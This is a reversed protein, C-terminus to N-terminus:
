KVDAALLNEVMDRYAIPFVVRLQKEQVDSLRACAVRLVDLYIRAKAKEISLPIDGHKLWIIPQHIWELDSLCEELSDWNASFYEPFQLAVDFYSMLHDKENINIPVTTVYDNALTSIEEFYFNEPIINM